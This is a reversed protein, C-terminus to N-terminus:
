WSGRRVMKKIKKKLAFQGSMNELHLDLSELFSERSEPTDDQLRIGSMEVHCEYPQLTGKSHTANVIYLEGDIELVDRCVLKFLPGNHEHTVAIIRFSNPADVQRDASALNFHAWFDIYSGSWKVFMQYPFTKVEVVPSIFSNAVPSPISTEKTFTNSLASGTSNAGIKKLQELYTPDLVRPPITGNTQVRVLEEPQTADKSRISLAVGIRVKTPCGPTGGLYVPQGTKVPGNIGSLQNIPIDVIVKSM